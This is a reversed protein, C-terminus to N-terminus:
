QSAFLSSCWNENQPNPIENHIGNAKQYKSDIDFKIESAQKEIM